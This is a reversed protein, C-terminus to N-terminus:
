YLNKKKELGKREKQQNDEAMVAICVGNLSKTGGGGDDNNGRSSDYSCSVINSVRVGAFLTSTDNFLLLPTLAHCVSVCFIAESNIVCM